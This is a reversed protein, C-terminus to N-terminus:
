HPTPKAGDGLRKRSEESLRLLKAASFAGRLRLGHGTVNEVVVLHTRGATSLTDLINRVTASAVDTMDLVQWNEVRDMIDGVLIDDRSCTLYSCGVNQMHLMPKEGSIDYSTIFGAIKTRSDDLVFASRTRAHKMVELAADLPTTSTVTVMSREHFDTMVSLAPASLDVHWANQDPALLNAAGPRLTLIRNSM